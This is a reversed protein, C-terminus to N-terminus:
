RSPQTQNAKPQTNNMQMPNSAQNQRQKYLQFRSPVPKRPYSNNETSIDATEFFPDLTFSSVKKTTPIVKTVVDDNFRWIEAPIRVIEHTGDEYDMQIIVPMVLGGINKLKLVYYNLGADVLIKEEASLGNYYTQYNAKDASTVAYPDYANYFDALSPDQELLTSEILKDNEMKSKTQLKAQAEAQTLAKEKEPNQTNVQYYKVQELGIDVPKTGYFWGKWFWDLDVGSADEMSRFFDAPEPHKFAWRRAYEKFAYDFLDRGMVTERLINLATAPKSYANAGFQLINDSSTMIPSLTAPSSQMYPVIKQPEGRRSPYDRQWEQEARYQCFSNLGEDMWSWQREDSNVIMPFFNHGVEHIIVSIVGYKLAETYTGDAEPRGGNFCIMPYEMGGGGAWSVSIAAPYPYPITYKSYTRLTHAIAQTSYKGWLPNSEPPYYSMAWVKKAASNQGAVAVQMADWIFRRSTTFAFDRVNDATFIWTKKNTSKSKATQIAEEQTVLAIPVKSTKARELRERQTATLVKAANMLEGTAGVVHDAPVTIAVSYKGFPLTFEGQGLFQKHQWGTVDNYVAMRPFWQAIEYGCNGDAFREYGCRGPIKKMDNINYHWSVSFTYNSNPPLPSPIDVRMMTQNITHRLAKGAKDTVATIEFGGDFKAAEVFNLASFPQQLGNLQGTRTKFGDSEKNFLNQDLQLWLYTLTQPSRNTYTITESGTIHQKEDDLEVQITYDAQQQWYAPGPTGSATRYLNPTPLITGLQEFNTNAKDSTQAEALAITLLPLLSVLITKKM